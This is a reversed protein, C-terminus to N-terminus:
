HIVLLNTSFKHLKFLFRHVIKYHFYRIITSNMFYCEIFEVLISTKENNEIEIEQKWNEREKARQARFESDQSEVCNIAFLEWNKMMRLGKAYM